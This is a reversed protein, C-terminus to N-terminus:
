ERRAEPTSCAPSDSNCRRQPSRSIEPVGRDKSLERGSYAEEVLRILDSESLCGQNQHCLEWSIELSAPPIDTFTDPQGDESSHVMIRGPYSVRARNVRGARQVLADIPRVRYPARRLRTRAFGRRGPHRHAAAATEDNIREEMKRRDRFIFKSHYCCRVRVQSAKPWIRAANSLTSWSWSRSRNGARESPEGM